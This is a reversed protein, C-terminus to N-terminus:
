QTPSGLVAELQIQTSRCDMVRKGHRAILLVFNSSIAKARFDIQIRPALSLGGQHYTFSLVDRPLRYVAANERGSIEINKPFISNDSSHTAASKLRSDVDQVLNRSKLCRKVSCSANAVQGHTSHNESPLQYTAFEVLLAVEITLKATFVQRPTSKAMGPYFLRSVIPTACELSPGFRRRPAASWIAEGLRAM